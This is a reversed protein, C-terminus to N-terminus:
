MGRLIFFEQPKTFHNTWPSSAGSVPVYPGAVNTSSLLQYGGSWTLVLSSGSRSSVLSPRPVPVVEGTSLIQAPYVGPAFGGPNSFQIQALQSATLGSATTGFYIHGDRTSSWNTITLLAGATWSIGSSSSCYVRAPFGSFGLTTNTALQIQGMVANSASTTIAGGLNVLGTNTFAGSGVLSLTGRTYLGQVVLDGAQLEYSGVLSLVGNVSHHGGTQQFDGSIGSYTTTLSGGDLHYLASSLTLNLGGPM